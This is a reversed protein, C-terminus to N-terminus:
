SFSKTANAKGKEAVCNVITDVVRSTGLVDSFALCAKHMALLRDPAALLGCISSALAHLQANDSGSTDTFDVLDCCGQQQAMRTANQQNDAVVALIAPTACAQLEFQTGGAASVVLQSNLFVEAVNQCNDLWNITLESSSILAQLERKWPYAAGTLVNIILGVHAHSNGRDLDRLHSPLLTLIQRTVNRPDSGGMVISLYQRTQWDRRRAQTDPSIFEQRLIRYPQGLCYKAFPATVEYGLHTAHDAGNLVVDAYLPGSQNNDDFCVLPCDAEGLVQRYDQDFQYGDLVLCDIHEQKCLEILSMADQQEGPLEIAQGVKRKQQALFPLSSALMAFIIQQGAAELAQALALCRMLHGIGMSPSADVRFLVRM